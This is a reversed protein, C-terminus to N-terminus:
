VMKILLKKGCANAYKRLTSFSPSHSDSRISSGLRSIASKTTGMIAAVQEQTLGAEKRAQFLESLAAYEEELADWAKKFGPKAFLKEDDKHTHPVPSFTDRHKVM